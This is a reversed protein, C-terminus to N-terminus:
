RVEPPDKRRDAIRTHGPEVGRPDLEVYVGHANRNRTGAIGGVPLFLRDGRHLLRLKTNAHEQVTARRAGGDPSTVEREVVHFDVGFIPRSAESTFLSRSSIRCRSASIRGRGLAGVSQAALM